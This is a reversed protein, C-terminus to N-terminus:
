QLHEFLRRRLDTVVRAGVRAMLLFQGYSLLATLFILGLMSIALRDLTALARAQLVRDLGEQALPPRARSLSTSGVSLAGSGILLLRYPKALSLLRRLTAPAMPAIEELDQGEAEPVAVDLAM